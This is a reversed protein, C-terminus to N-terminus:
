FCIPFFDCGKNDLELRKTGYCMEQVQGPYVSVVSLAVSYPFASRVDSVELISVSATGICTKASLDASNHSVLSVAVSRPSM